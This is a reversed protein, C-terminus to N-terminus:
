PRSLNKAGPRYLLKSGFDKLQSDTMEQTSQCGAECEPCTEKLFIDGNENYYDKLKISPYRVCCGDENSVLAMSETTMLTYDDAM